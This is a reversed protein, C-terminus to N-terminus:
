SHRSAWCTKDETPEYHFQIDNRQHIYVKDRLVVKRKRILFTEFGKVPTFIQTFGPVDKQASLVHTFESFDTINEIKSYRWNPMYEMFRSIGTMAPFVDIHLYPVPMAPDQRRLEEYQRSFEDLAVGGPYNHHSVYIGFASGLVSTLLVGAALAVLGFNV